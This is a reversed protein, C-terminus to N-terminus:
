CQTTCNKQKSSPCLQTLDCLNMFFGQLELSKSGVWADGFMQSLCTDTTGKRGDVM